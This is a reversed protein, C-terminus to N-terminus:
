RWVSSDWQALHQETTFTFVFNDGGIGDRNGDLSNGAVDRAVTANILIRYTTVYDLDGDPIIYLTNGSWELDYTLSPSISLSNEVLTQNMAEDFTIRIRDMTARTDAAGDSPDTQIVTPPVVDAGGTTFTWNFSEISNGPDSGDRALSSLTVEYSSAPRLDFPPNFTLNRGSFWFAGSVDTSDQIRVMQFSAEVSSWDMGESFVVVVNVDLPVGIGEPLNDVVLPHASDIEFVESNDFGSLGEADVVTANIVVTSSNLMPIIWSFTFGEGSIGQAGAISTWPGGGTESFNLWVRLDSVSKDDSLSWTIDHASGGTWIEGALPRTVLMSPPLNTSVNTTFSWSFDSFMENGPDSDDRANSSINVTHQIAPELDILPDFVLTNGSFIMEGPVEEWTDSRSMKFASQASSGNMDESFFVSVSSTPSVTGGTPHWEDVFPLSSDMEFESSEGSGFLLGSDMVTAKIVVRTSDFAPVTWNIPGSDGPIAQAGAIPIWPPGGNLSYNLWVTLNSAPDEQDEATWVIPHESGGTWSADAQPEDVSITPPVNGSARAYVYVDDIYWGQFDNFSADVTDFFFRIQIINGVYADLVRTWELWTRNERLTLQVAGPDYPRQWPNNGVKLLLWRQDVILIPETEYWYEFTLVAGDANTLDIPPTTLNGFNRAGTDYNGTVDLGYWWSTYNSYSIHWPPSPASSNVQHWLPDSTWGNMVPDMDDFFPLPHALQAQLVVSDMVTLDISSKGTVLVTDTDGYGASPSITVNVYIVAEGGPLLVNTDPIFDPPMETDSLPQWISDFLDVTWGSSSDATIDVTDSILGKNKVIVEYSLTDGKKGFAYTEQATVDVSAALGTVQISFDDLYWGPAVSLSPEVGIEVYDWLRFRFAVTSGIFSTLNFEAQVWGGSSLAYARVGGHMREPYDGVPTIVVWPLADKSMEVWGGDQYDGSINYWHWFTLKASTAFDPIEILPSYLYSNTFLTYNGSLNTGTVNSGSHAASPGLTFLPDPTGFEWDDVPRSSFHWFDSGGELNDFWPAVFPNGTRLFVSDNSAPNSWPYAVIEILDFSGAPEGPPISVSVKLFSHSQPAIPGMDVLSNANHDTLPNMSGDFFAVSWGQSSIAEFDYSEQATGTNNVTIVFIASTGAEAARSSFTPYLAVDTPTGLVLNGYENPTLQAFKPWYAIKVSSEDRIGVKSAHNGAYFGITDGLSLSTTPQGLLAIPISFEYMRHNLLQNVSPGFGVAADLGSHFPLGQDMPDEAFWDNTGEDYVFHCKPSSFGVCYADVSAKVTFEDDGGHTAAGSHDGDFSLSATDGTDSTADEIADYLFFLHTQNNKVYLLVDLQNMSIDRMDVLTANAWELPDFIGDVTIADLDFRSYIAAESDHHASSMEFPLSPLVTSVVLLAVVVSGRIRWADAHQM